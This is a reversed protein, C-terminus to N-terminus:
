RMLNTECLRKGKSAITVDGDTPPASEGGTDVGLLHHQLMVPAFIAMVTVVPMTLPLSGSAQARGPATLAHLDRLSSFDVVQFASDAVRNEIGM